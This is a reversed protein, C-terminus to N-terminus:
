ILIDKKIEGGCRLAAYLNGPFPVTFGVISPMESEIKEFLSSVMIEDIFTHESRLRNDLEDFSSAYRGLREAYRSFGFDPDINESIFSCLDELYLTCLHRAKDRFGILGFEEDFDGAQTFYFGKPLFDERAIYQAMSQNKNQLFDIVIDITNIYENRLSYVRKSDESFLKKDAIQFIRKLGEKSFIKLIVELSLDYQSSAINQKDFFGKLYPTAPYPTNLQSFPPTILLIKIDNQM